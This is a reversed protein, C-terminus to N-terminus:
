AVGERGQVPCFLSLAVAALVASIIIRFGESIFSFVPLFAMMCSLGAALVVCPLVGREQRMPPLIIAIFMAYLMLGMAHNMIPPLVDGAVAGLLTGLAWGIYPATILGAFYIKGVSSEKASAVAFIEDTIFMGFLMRMGTGMTSDLRGTLAVGMLAYRLNIVLQTLILEVLVTWLLAGTQLTGAMVQVGAVQGASTVNTMSTFLAELPLLGSKVALVGFGFSVSFYGLGIPVGDRFGERYGYPSLAKQM